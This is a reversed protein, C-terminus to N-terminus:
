WRGSRLVQFGLVLTMLLAVLWGMAGIVPIGYWVPGVPRIMLLASAVLLSGIVMAWAMRHFGRQVSDELPTLNRVEM